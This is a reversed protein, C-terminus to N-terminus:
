PRADRKNKLSDRWNRDVKTLPKHDDPNRRPTKIKRGKPVPKARDVKKTEKAKSTKKIIEDM